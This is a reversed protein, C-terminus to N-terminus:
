VDALEIVGHNLLRVLFRGLSRFAAQSVAEATARAAPQGEPAQLALALAGLTLRRGPAEALLRLAAELRAPREPLFGAAMWTVAEPARLQVWDSPGLTGRAQARLVGDLDVLPRYPPAAEGSWAKEARAAAEQFYAVYRRAVMQITRGEINARAARGLRQRTEGDGLAVVGELFRSWDCWVLRGAEAAQPIHAAGFLSARMGDTAPVARTEVLFGNEGDIVVEGLGAWDTTIVPLAHAMAEHVVLSSAEEVGTTLHLFADAASMLAVRADPLLDFPNELIVVRGGVGAAQATARLEAVFARDVLGGALVLTATPLRAVVERWRGVLALQDGKTGRSLRSFSLFMSDQDRLHLRRRTEERLPQSRQNTGVDVGNPIVVTDEPFGTLGFRAAWDSWVERFIQQAPRSKFIFGDTPRIAGSALAILLNSWQTPIHTSGVSCVVPAWDGSPRLM